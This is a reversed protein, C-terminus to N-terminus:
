ILFVEIMREVDKTNLPIDATEMSLILNKGPIIGKKLYESIRATLNSSYEPDDMKGCHEWYFEQRTRLNLCLFDAHFTVGRRIPVPYEYHYPIKHTNLLNAIIVESKSRVKEGKITELNGQPVESKHEYERNQWLQAYEKPSLIFPKVLVRRASPLKSFCKYVSEPNYNKIVYNTARLNRKLCVLLKKLYDRQALKQAEVRNKKLIYVRKNQRDMKYYQISKHSKSIRLTGTPANKLEQEVRAIIEALESYKQRADHLLLM